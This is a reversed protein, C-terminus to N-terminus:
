WHFTFPVVEKGAAGTPAKQGCSLKNSCTAINGELAWPFVAEEEGARPEEKRQEPRPEATSSRTPHTPGQWYCKAGNM